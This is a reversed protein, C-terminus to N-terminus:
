EELAVQYQIIGDVEAIRIGRIRSHVPTESTYVAKYVDKGQGLKLNRDVSNIEWIGGDKYKPRGFRDWEVEIILDKENAQMNPLFFYKRGTSIVSGIINDKVARVLSEEITGEESRCSHREAIYSWGLGFCVPCTRNAEITVENYCSCRKKKEVRLVLVDHGYEELITKFEKALNISVRM